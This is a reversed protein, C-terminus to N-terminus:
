GNNEEKNNNQLFEMIVRQNKESRTEYGKNVNNYNSKLQPFIKNYVWNNRKLVAYHSKYRHGKYELYDDLIQIAEHIRIGYIDNLKNFEEETLKVREFEGFSKKETKETPTIDLKNSIPTNNIVETNSIIETNSNSEINNYQANESDYHNEVITFNCLLSLANYDIEWDWCFGKSQGLCRRTRILIKKDSLEKVYKKINDKFHKQIDAMFFQWNNPKSCLYCLIGKAGCTLEPCNVINNSIISFNDKIGNKFSNKDEMKEGKLLAPNTTLSQTNLKIAPVFGM